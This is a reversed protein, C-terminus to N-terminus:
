EEAPYRAMNNPTEWVEIKTLKARGNSRKDVAIELLEYWFKALCEATPIFETVLVKMLSQDKVLPSFSAGAGECSAVLDKVPIMTHGRLMDIVIVDKYWVIIGHDCMHDINEMMEEKLFSFDMVMGAEVGDCPLDKACATAEITYRHGHLSFCKSGHTPVRHAADMGIKSTISFM